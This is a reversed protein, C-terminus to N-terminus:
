AAGLSRSFSRLRLRNTGCPMSPRSCLRAIPRAGLGSASPPPAEEAHACTSPRGPTHELGNLNDSAHSLTDVAPTAYCSDLAHAIQPPLISAGAHGQIHDLHRRSSLRKFGYLNVRARRNSRPLFRPDSAYPISSGSTILWRPHCLRVTGNTLVSIIFAVEHGRATAVGRVACPFLGRSAFHKAASWDSRAQLQTIVDHRHLIGVAWIRLLLSYARAKGGIRAPADM